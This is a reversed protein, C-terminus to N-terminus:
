MRSIRLYRVIEPFTRWGWVSAALLAAVKLLTMSRRAVRRARAHRRWRFMM